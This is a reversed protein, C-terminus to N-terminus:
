LELLSFHRVKCMTFFVRRCTALIKEVGNFSFGGNIIYPAQGAMETDNLPKVRELMRLEVIM